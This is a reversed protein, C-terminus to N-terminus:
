YFRNWNKTGKRGSSEYYYNEDIIGIPDQLLIRALEEARNVAEEYQSIDM